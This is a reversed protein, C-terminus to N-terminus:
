ETMDYLEGGLTGAMRRGFRSPPPTASWWSGGMAPCRCRRRCLCCHCCCRRRKQAQSCARRCLGSPVLFWACAAVVVKVEGGGCVKNYVGKELAELVTSKGHFGGGVILTVGARVGLGRVAGRNPLQLTMALSDPSRFPVAEAAPMPEDSAGSKRRRRRCPCLLTNRHIGASACGADGGGGVWRPLVAGDGIFAVLGQGELQDRLAQTDEVCQVHAALARHDLQPHLLGSHM